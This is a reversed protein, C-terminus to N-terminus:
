EEEAPDYLEAKALESINQGPYGLEDTIGNAVLVQACRIMVNRLGPCRSEDYFDTDTIVTGVLHSLDDLEVTVPNPM